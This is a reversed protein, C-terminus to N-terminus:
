KRYPVGDYVNIRTALVLGPVESRVRTFIDRALRTRNELSGGYPGPRTRAALLESLLYRHGPKLDVFQFGVGPPLRAAAVYHDALRRLYDDDLLPYDADATRGTAKDVVTRPDLVPDHFALLPRRFSYRGSHTLQLGVILDDDSGFADRHAQRCGRL